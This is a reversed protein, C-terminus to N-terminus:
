VMRWATVLVFIFLLDLCLYRLASLLGRGTLMGMEWLVLYGTLLVAAMATFLPKRMGGARQPIRRGAWRWVAVRVAWAIFLLAACVFLAADIILLEALGYIDPV